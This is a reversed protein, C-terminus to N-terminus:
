DDNLIAIVHEAIRPTKEVVQQAVAAKLLSKEEGIVNTRVVKKQVDMMHGQMELYSQYDEGLRIRLQAYFLFKAQSRLRCFTDVLSGYGLCLFFVGFPGFFGFEFILRSCNLSEHFVNM